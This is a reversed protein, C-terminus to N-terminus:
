LSDLIKQALEAHFWKHVKQFYAYKEDDSKFFNHVVKAFVEFNQNEFDNKLM